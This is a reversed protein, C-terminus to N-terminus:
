NGDIMTRLVILFELFEKLELECVRSGGEKSICCYLYNNKCVCHLAFLVIFVPQRLPHM